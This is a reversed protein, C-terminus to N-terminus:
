KVFIQKLNLTLDDYIDLKDDAKFTGVDSKQKGPAL